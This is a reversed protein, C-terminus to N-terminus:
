HEQLTYSPMPSKPPSSEFYPFRNELVIFSINFVISKTSQQLEKLIMMMEEVSAQPKSELLLRFLSRIKKKLGADPFIHFTWWLTRFCGVSLLEM